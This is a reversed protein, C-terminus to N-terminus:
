RNIEVDFTSRGKQRETNSTANGYYRSHQNSRADSQLYFSSPSSLHLLLLNSSRNPQMRFAALYFAIDLTVGRTQQTKKEYPNMWVGRNRHRAFDVLFGNVGLTISRCSHSALLVRRMSFMQTAGPHPQLGNKLLNRTKLSFLILLM